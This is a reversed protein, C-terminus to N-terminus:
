RLNNYTISYAPKSSELTAQENTPNVNYFNFYEVLTPDHIQWDDLGLSLYIDKLQYCQTLSAVFEGSFTRRWRLRVMMPPSVTMRTAMSAKFKNGATIKITPFCQEIVILLTDIFVELAKMYATDDCNGTNRYGYIPPSNM